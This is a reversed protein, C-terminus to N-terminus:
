SNEYEEPLKLKEDVDLQLVCEDQPEEEIDMIIAWLRQDAEEDKEGIQVSWGWLTVALLGLLGYFRKDKISCYPVM